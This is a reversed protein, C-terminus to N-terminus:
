SATEREDKWQNDSPDFSQTLKFHYQRRGDLWAYHIEITRILSTREHQLRNMIQGYTDESLSFSWESREDPFRVMDTAEYKFPPQEPSAGHFTRPRNRRFAM